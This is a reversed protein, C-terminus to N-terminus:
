TKPIERLREDTGAVVLTDREAVETTDDALFEGDRRLGVGVWEQTADHAIEGLRQGVFEDGEVEAFRIQGVPHVTRMGAQYIVAYGVLVSVLTVLFKVVTRQRNTLDEVSSVSRLQRLQQELPGQPKESSM